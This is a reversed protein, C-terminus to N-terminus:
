EGTDNDAHRSLLRELRRVQEQHLARIEIMIERLAPSDLALLMDPFYLEGEACSLDLTPVAFSIRLIAAIEQLRKDDLSPKKSDRM